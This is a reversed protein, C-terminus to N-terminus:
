QEDGYICLYALHMPGYMCGTCVYVCVDLVDEFSRHLVEIPLELVLALTYVWCGRAFMKLFPPQCAFLYPM